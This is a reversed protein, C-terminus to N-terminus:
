VNYEEKNKCIENVLKCRGKHKNINSQYIPLKTRFSGQTLGYTDSFMKTSVDQESEELVANGKCKGDKFDCQLESCYQRKCKEPLLLNNISSCETIVPNRKPCGDLSYKAAADRNSRKRIKNYEDRSIFNERVYNAFLFVLFVAILISIVKIM